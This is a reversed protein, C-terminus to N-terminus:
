HSVRISDWVNVCNKVGTLGYHRGNRAEYNAQLTGTAYWLRQAGNEHGDHYHGDRALQGNPYWERVHGEYVDHRFHLVFAPKGSEYWGHQQGEQWGNDYQRLEQPQGNAYWRRHIGQAKGDRFAGVFATDGTSYLSYQWGSFLTDTLWIRGDQRHWGPAATSVFVAPITATPAQVPRCSWGTLLWGLLLWEARLPARRGM